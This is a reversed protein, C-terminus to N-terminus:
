PEPDQLRLPPDWFDLVKAVAYELKRWHISAPWGDETRVTVPEQYSKM